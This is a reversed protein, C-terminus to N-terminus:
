RSWALGVEGEEGWRWGLGALAALQAAWDSLQRSRPTGTVQAGGWGPLSLQAQQPRWGLGLGAQPSSGRRPAQAGRRQGRLDAAVARPQPVAAEVARLQGPGLAQRVAGVSVHEVYCVGLCV